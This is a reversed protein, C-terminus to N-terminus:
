WDLAALLRSTVKGVASVETQKTTAPMKLEPQAISSREKVTVVELDADSLDNRIVRVADLSLEEQLPQRNFITVPARASHQTLKLAGKSFYKAGQQAMVEKLWAFRIGKRRKPQSVPVKGPKPVTPEQEPDCKKLLTAAESECVVPQNRTEVASQKKALNFKPPFNQECLRYRHPADRSEKVSRGMVLLQM